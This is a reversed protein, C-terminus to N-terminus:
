TLYVSNKAIWEKIVPYTLLKKNRMFGSRLTIVQFEMPLRETFKLLPEHNKEDLHNAVLGSVAYLTSPEDPLKVTEPARLIDDITMKFNARCFGMFERAVPEGITGAKISMHNHDIEEWNKCMRNLFSWTRPCAFTKDSHDPKFMHLNDPKFKIYSAIRHDGGNALFWEIWHEFNINLQFHVMRSQMATGMRNVIARDTTLNGAAMQWVKKHLNHQGIQRDLIVKYAAAQVSLPASNMEDYLILWGKYGKPLNDGELPFIDMPLYSARDGQLSPFGSLDTPDCQTLRIDILKLAYKEAIQAALASKGCGPSSVVMPVLGARMVEVFMEPAKQTNVTVTTLSM